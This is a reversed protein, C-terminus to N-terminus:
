KRVMVKITQTTGKDNINLLYLGSSLNPLGIINLSGAGLKKTLVVQGLGNVLTAVAGEGVEGIIRIEKNGNAYATLKGPLVQDELGSVIDGTHLYFRGTGATNAVVAAKYSDKSLDTFTNTLKDELIVKCNPNLQVTEVSFVIEGASKSDIGVPIVLKDYGTPPLCQLQFQIGNDEILKTYLSFSPDAKLIGADYGPDLGNKTGEIFKIDTSVTKNNATAILKIKPYPVTTAKFPAAIQHTRMDATFSVKSIGTKVKMFFGQGVPAYTAADDAFNVEDYKNDTQNWLYLSIHSDDYFSSTNVTMFNAKETITSAMPNINIASTFPNGICNWGALVDSEANATIEGQFRLARVPDKIRVMYGKGIGLESTNADTFYDNWKNGGPSYDMMGYRDPLIGSAPIYPICTNDAIFDNIKQTGTPSSIIHWEDNSMYREVLAFGTGSVGGTILSGTGNIDSKIVIRGNNNIAGSLTLSSSPDITLAGGTAVSLSAVTPKNGVNPIRIVDKSTPVSNLDWNAANNWDTSESGDWTFLLPDTGYRWEYAGMDVTGVAGDSKNLKRANGRLDTTGSTYSNNGADVAASNGCISYPHSSEGTFKPDVGFLNGTGEVIKSSVNNGYLSGYSKAIANITGDVDSYFGTNGYIISNYINVEDESYLGGARDTSNGINGAITTNILNLVDGDAPNSDFSLVGGVAGSGTATNDSVVCNVLTLNGQNLIGGVSHGPDNGNQVILNELRTTSGHSNTIVRTANNGDLIIGGAAGQITLDKGIVVPATLKILNTGMSSLDFNIYDGATADLICQKLSGPGSETTNLVTRISATAVTVPITNSWAGMGTTSQYACVRYYYITGVTLGTVRFLNVNGVDKISYGAVKATFANDTAVDLYYKEVTGMDPATWNATFGLSYNNTAATSTPIVMAYSDVYNSTTGTLAFNHLTGNMGSVTQDYLTTLSSNNGGALGQNFDLDMVLDPNAPDVESVMDSQIEAQLRATKWILFDDLTFNSNADSGWNSKGIYNYIRTINQPTNAFPGEGTKIGDMYISGTSGNLVFAMHTWKYLPMIKSSGIGSSAGGNYIHVTPFGGTETSITMLVNNSGSGNGFDFLRSWNNYSRVYVWAEVTFTNDDFYVGSPLSIYDDTGDFSLGNGPPSTLILKGEHGYTTGYSNTAYARYYYPTGSTLDSYSISFTGTGSGQQTKSVPNPSTGFAVGRDTVDSAGPSTINGGITVSNPGTKSAAITTIVPTAIQTTFSLTNGYAPGYENVAYARFHYTTNHNLGTVSQSFVGVGSGIAIDNVLNDSTIGWQIGRTSVSAAGQSTVNGGLSSSFYSISGAAVTEIVPIQTPTTFNLIEGFGTGYTNTAYARFYYTTGPTLGDVLQSFTELEIEIPVDNSLNGSTLGWKIGRSTPAEDGEKTVEGGLTASFYSVSGAITTNVTPYCLSISPSQFYGCPSNCSWNIKSPDPTDSTGNFLTGRWGEWPDGGWPDGGGPCSYDPVFSWDWWYGNWFGEFFYGGDNQSYYQHDGTDDTLTYNGNINSYDWCEVRVQQQASVKIGFLLM